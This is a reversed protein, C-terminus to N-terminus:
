NGALLPNVYIMHGVHGTVRVAKEDQGATSFGRM